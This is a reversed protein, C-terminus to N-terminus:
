NLGPEPVNNAIDESKITTPIIAPIIKLNTFYTAFLLFDKKLFRPIAAVIKPTTIAIKIPMKLMDVLGSLKSVGKKDFTTTISPKAITM